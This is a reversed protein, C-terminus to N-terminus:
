RSVRGEADTDVANFLQPADVSFLLFSLEDNPLLSLGHEPFWITDPLGVLVQDGENLLPLVRFLADCLGAPRPQM